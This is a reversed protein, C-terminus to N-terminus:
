DNKEEEFMKELQEVLKEHGHQVFFYKEEQQGGSKNVNRIDDLFNREDFSSTYRITRM